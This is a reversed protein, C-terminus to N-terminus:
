FIYFHKFCFFNLLVANFLYVTKIKQMKLVFMNQRVACKKKKVNVLNLICDISGSIYQLFVFCFVGILFDNKCHMGIQSSFFHIIFKPHKSGALSNKQIMGRM